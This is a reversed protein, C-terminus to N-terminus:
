GGYASNLSSIQVATGAIECQRMFLMSLQQSQFEVTFVETSLYQPVLSCRAYGVVYHLIQSHPPDSGLGFGSLIVVHTHM